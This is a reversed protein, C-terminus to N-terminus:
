GSPPKIILLGDPVALGVPFKITLARCITEPVNLGPAYVRSMFPGKEILPPVKLAGDVWIFTEPAVVIEPPVNVWLLPEITKSGVDATVSLAPEAAKFFTEILVAAFAVMVILPVMVIAPFKVTLM